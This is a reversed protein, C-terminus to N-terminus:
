KVEEVYDILEKGILFMKNYDKRLLFATKKQLLLIKGEMVYRDIDSVFFDNSITYDINAKIINKIDFNTFYKKNIDCANNLLIKVNDIETDKMIAMFSKTNKLDMPDNTMIYLVKDSSDLTVINIPTLNHTTDILIVDYKFEANSLVMTVYKIDIKAAQRPDKPSCLIDINENYNYVYEEFNSYRNNILDDVLNYITKESEINLSLGIGGGYLDLDIILTKKKLLHYVSALNLTTITKGVGGKSSTVMIIKGKEKAM